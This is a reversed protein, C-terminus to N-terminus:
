ILDKESALREGLKASTMITSCFVLFCISARNFNTSAVYSEAMARDPCYTDSRRSANKYKLARKMKKQLGPDESEGLHSSQYNQSSSSNLNPGRSNLM